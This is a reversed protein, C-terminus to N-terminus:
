CRGQAGEERWELKRVRRGGDLVVAACGAGLSGTGLQQLLRRLVPDDGSRVDSEWAEPM